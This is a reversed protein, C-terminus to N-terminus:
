LHVHEIWYHHTKAVVTIVNKIEKELQFDPGAPLFLVNGERRVCVNEVIIARLLWLAMQEDHCRVGVWGLSASGVIPLHTVLQLGREIEAVVRTYSTQNSRVEEPSAPELLTGRHPPGGALALDCFDTWMQDWAVQGQANYRMPASGMPAASVVRGDQYRSPLQEALQSPACQSPFLPDSASLLVSPLLHHWDIEAVEGGSITVEGIPEQSNGWIVYDGVALALFLAAFVPRNNARRELVDTHTRQWESGRLSVDIQRGRLEPRCYIVLAGVDEGIDLVAHETHVRDTYTEPM